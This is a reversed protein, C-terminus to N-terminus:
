YKMELPSIYGDLEGFEVGMLNPTAFYNIGYVTADVRDDNKGFPFQLFEDVVKEVGEKFFVKGNEFHVSEAIARRVKDKEPKVAKIPLPRNTKEFIWERIASQYAVEEILIAELNYLDAIKLIKNVLEVSSYKATFDELVYINAGKSGLLILGTNDAKDSKSIAPDVSLIFREVPEFGYQIWDPKFIADEDLMPRNEYEQAYVLSGFQKKKELLEKKGFREPWLPNEPTTAFFLSEHQKLQNSLLSDFHLVTGILIYQTEGDGLSLINSKYVRDLKTRQDISIINEDNEVDDCVVISPREGKYNIGRTKGFIGDFYIARKKGFVTFEIQEKNKSIIDIEFIRQLDEDYLAELAIGGVKTALSNTSSIWVAFDLEKESTCIKWLVYMLTVVTKAHSRPAALVCVKSELYYGVIKKHFPPTRSKILHSSAFVFFVFFSKVKNQTALYLLESDSYIM